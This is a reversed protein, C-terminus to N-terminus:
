ILKISIIIIYKISIHKNNLIFFNLCPKKNKFLFISFSYISIHTNFILEIINNEDIINSLNQIENTLLINEVGSDDSKKRNIFFIIIGIIVILIVLSMIYYQKKM